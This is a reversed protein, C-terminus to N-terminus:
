PHVPPAADPPAPDSSASGSPARVSSGLEAPAPDSALLAYLAVDLRREAFPLASRLIGELRFGLREAVRRSRTNAAASRIELRSLGLFWAEDRLIAAARTVLGAGEAEADIWYGLEGTGLHHDLKLTVAGIPLGNRVILAPITGGHAYRAELFGTFLRLSEATQEGAAWPEWERLRDLNRLTLAHVAALSDPETTRLRLTAGHGLDIGAELRAGLGAAGDSASGDSAPSPTPSM